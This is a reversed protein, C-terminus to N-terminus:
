RMNIWVLIDEKKKKLPIEPYAKQKKKHTKKTDYSVTLWNQGMLLKSDSNNHLPFIFSDFYSAPHFRNKITKINM